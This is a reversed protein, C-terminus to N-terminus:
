RVWCNGRGWMADSFYRGKGEGQELDFEWAHYWFGSVPDMLYKIHLLFQKKALTLPARPLPGM